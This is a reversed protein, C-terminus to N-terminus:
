YDEENLYVPLHDRITRFMDLTFSDDVRANIKQIDRGLAAQIDDTFAAAFAVLSDPDSGEDQLSLTVVLKDAFKSNQFVKNLKEIKKDKPIIKSIDEELRLKSAFVALLIFLISFSLFLLTRHREFYNYISSFIKEM